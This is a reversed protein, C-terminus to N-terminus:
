ALTRLESALEVLPEGERSHATSIDVIFITAAGADIRCRIPGAFAALADRLEPPTSRALRWSAPEFRDSADALFAAAVDRQEADLLSISVSEAAILAEHASASKDVSFLLRPPAASVTALSTTRLGRPGDAGNCAVIAAATALRRLGADFAAPKARPWVRVVECAEPTEVAAQSM